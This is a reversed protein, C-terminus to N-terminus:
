GKKVDALIENAARVGEAAGGEMFGQFDISCHEGAFHINGQRMREYGSFGTYQGPKWYSYSLLFNPDTAPTSLMAKGNWRATIGPFIPELQALFQQAYTTVNPNNASTSYPNSQGMAQATSAGPYEVLIGTSGGQGRTVEWGSQFSQDSYLSGTSGSQNWLRSDFQVNLKVNRGTGMQTIATKKLQDFGAKKYDLTRLVAFPLCLLVHDATITKGNAFSVKISGDSALAISTMRYGLHVSGGPLAGAIAVPLNANGGVLHYREDSAGYVSWTGPGAKFGLLYILNLASQDTTEAGYEENYAANLLAGFRSGHGGPVYNSIWDYLTMRDFFQGTPTFSNYLTPYGAAQVQGQLTNHVPKFDISAQAYPYDAGFIWYTDETGNPQAQLLDVTPLKFRQALQLITKHDSDILEGCLEAQQGNAWYGTGFEQWDSHMRGGVRGSSEYVDAYVGADQLTLAATLGAIGGGVIAIRPAGAARASRALALPGGLAVAAGVAGTRTLLERRSIRAERYEEVEIGLQSAAQHERALRHLARQLPTRAMEGGETSSARLIGRRAGATL